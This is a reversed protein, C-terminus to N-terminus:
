FAQPAPVIVQGIGQGEQRIFGKRSYFLGHM